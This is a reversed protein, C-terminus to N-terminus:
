SQDNQLMRKLASTKAEQQAKQHQLQAQEMEEKQKKLDVIKVSAMQQKVKLRLNDVTEVAKSLQNQKERTLKMNMVTQESNNKIFQNLAGDTRRMKNLRESIDKGRLRM